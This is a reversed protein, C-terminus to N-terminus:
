ETEEKLIDAIKQSEKKIIDQMDPEEIREVAFLINQVPNRLADLMNNIYEFRKQEKIELLKKDTIDILSIIKGGGYRISKTFLWKIKGNKTEIKIEGDKSFKKFIKAHNIEKFNYELIRMAEPNAYVCRDNQIYMLGIPMKEMLTQSLTILNAIRKEQASMKKSVKKYRIGLFVIVSISAVLTGMTLYIYLPLQENVTPNFWKNYLKTFEGCSKVEDIAYNLRVVLWDENKRVGIAIPLSFAQIGTLRVNNLNYKAIYYSTTHIEYLFLDVSNTNVLQLGEQPTDVEVLYLKQHTKNMWEKAFIETIDGKVVAITHNAIEDINDIQKMQARQFFNFYLHMYVETFLFTKNREPTPVMAMLADVKGNKLWLMDQNWNGPVFNFTFNTYKEISHLFDINFGVLNGQPDFYSYPPLNKDIAIKVIKEAPASFTSQMFPILLLFAILVPLFRLHTPM